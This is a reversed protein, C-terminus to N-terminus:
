YVQMIMSCFLSVDSRSLIDLDSAFDWSGDQLLLSFLQALHQVLLKWISVLMLNECFGQLTYNDGNYLYHFQAKFLNSLKGLVPILIWM